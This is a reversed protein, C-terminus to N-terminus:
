SAAAADVETVDVEEGRRVREISDMDVGAVFTEVDRAIFGAWSSAATL